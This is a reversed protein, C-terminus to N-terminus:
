AILIAAAAILVVILGPFALALGLAWKASARRWLLVASPLATLVLLALIAVGAAEDMAGTAPERTGLLTAHVGAAAILLDAICVFLAARRM